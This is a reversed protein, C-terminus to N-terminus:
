IQALNDIQPKWDIVKSPICCNREFKVSPYLLYSVPWTQIQLDNVFKQSLLLGKQSLNLSICFSYQPKIARPEHSPGVM